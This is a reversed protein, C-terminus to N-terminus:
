GTIQFSSGDRRVVRIISGPMMAELRFDTPALDKGGRTCSLFEHSRPKDGSQGPQNVDVGAEFGCEIV